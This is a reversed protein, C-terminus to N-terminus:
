KLGKIEENQEIIQRHIARYLEAKDTYGDNLDGYIQYNGDVLYEPSLIAYIDHDDYRDNILMIKGDTYLVLINSDKDMYSFDDDNVPTTRRFYRGVYTAKDLFEALRMYKKNMQSKSDFSVVKDIFPDQFLLNIQKGNTVLVWFNDMYSYNAKGDKAVIEDIKDLAHFFLENAGEKSAEYELDYKLDEVTGTKYIDPKTKIYIDGNILIDM